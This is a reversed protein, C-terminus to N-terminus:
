ITIIISHANNFFIIQKTSFIQFNKSSLPERIDFIEVCFGLYTKLM